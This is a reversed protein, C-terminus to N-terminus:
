QGPQAPSFWQRGNHWMQYYPQMTMWAPRNPRKFYLYGLGVLAATAGCGFILHNDAFFNGTTSFGKSADLTFRSFALGTKYFGEQFGAVSNSFNGMITDKQIPSECGIVMSSPVLLAALALKKIMNM